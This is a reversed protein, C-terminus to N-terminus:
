SRCACATSSAGPLPHRHVDDLALQPMGIEPRGRRIQL